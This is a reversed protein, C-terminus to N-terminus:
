LGLASKHTSMAQLSKTVAALSATIKKTAADIAAADADDRAIVDKAQKVAAASGIEDRATQLFKEVDAKNARNKKALADCPL